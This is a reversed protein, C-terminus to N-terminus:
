SRENSLVEGFLIWKEGDFRALRVVQIPYFDTPKYQDQIGSLLLAVGL